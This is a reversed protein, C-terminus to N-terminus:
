GALREPVTGNLAEDCGRTQLGFQRKARRVINVFLFRVRNGFLHRLGLRHPRRAASSGVVVTIALGHRSSAGNAVVKGSVQQQSCGDALKLSSQSIM